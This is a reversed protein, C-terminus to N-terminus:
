PLCVSSPILNTGDITMTGDVADGGECEEEEELCIGAPFADGTHCIGQSYINYNQFLRGIMLIDKVGTSTVFENKNRITNVVGTCCYNVYYTNGGFPLGFSFAQTEPISNIGGTILIKVLVVIFFSALFSISFLKKNLRMM